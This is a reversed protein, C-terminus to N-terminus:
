ETRAFTGHHEVAANAYAVHAIRANAYRGLYITKGAVRIRAQWVLRKKNWLVGKYGSTNHSPRRRNCANQSHTCLRLNPLRNNWPDSDVHDIEMGDPIPGNCMEWIIRHAPHSKKNLRVEISHPTGSKNMKKSGAVTGTFYTQWRKWLGESKFDERQMANWTLHGSSADYTFYINWM